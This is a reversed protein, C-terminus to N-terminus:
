GPLMLLIHQFPDQEPKGCFRSLGECIRQKGEQVRCALTNLCSRAAGAFSGRSLASVCFDIFVSLLVTDSPM